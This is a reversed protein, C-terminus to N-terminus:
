PMTAMYHSGHLGAFDTPFLKLRLGSIGIPETTIGAPMKTMANPKSGNFVLQIREKLAGAISAQLPHAVDPCHAVTDERNGSLGDLGMTQHPFAGIARNRWARIAQMAAVVALATLRGMQEKTRERVVCSVAIGLISSRVSFSM